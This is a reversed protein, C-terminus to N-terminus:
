SITIISDFEENTLPIAKVSVESSTQVGLYPLFKCKRYVILSITEFSSLFEAITTTQSLNLAESGREEYGYTEFIAYPTSSSYEYSLTLVRTGFIPTAAYEIGLGIGNYTDWSASGGQIEADVDVGKEILLALLAHTNLTITRNAQIVIETTESPLDDLNYWKDDQWIYYNKIITPEPSPKPANLIYIEDSDSFIPENVIPLPYTGQYSPGEPDNIEFWCDSPFTGTIVEHNKNEFRYEDYNFLIEGSSFFKYARGSSTIFEECLDIDDEPTGSKEGKFVLNNNVLYEATIENQVDEVVRTQYALLHEVYTLGMANQLFEVNVGNTIAVDNGELDVLIAGDSTAKKFEKAIIEGHTLFVGKTGDNEVIHMDGSSINILTDDTINYYYGYRLSPDIEDISKIIYRRDSNFWVEKNKLPFLMPTGGQYEKTDIEYITLPEPNEPLEDVKVVGGGGQYEETTEDLVEVLNKGTIEKGTMKEGMDKMAEFLTNGEIKEGTAKEGFAKVSDLLKAM